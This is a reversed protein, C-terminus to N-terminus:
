IVETTQDLAPDKRAAEALADLAFNSLFTADGQRSMLAEAINAPDNVIRTVIKDVEGPVISRGLRQTVYKGTDTRWIRLEAWRQAGDERTSQEALLEGDFVLDVNGTRQLRFHAM